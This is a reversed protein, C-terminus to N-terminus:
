DNTIKSVLDRIEKLSLWSQNLDSRYHFDDNLLEGEPPSYGWSSYVPGVIYRDIQSITRTGEGVAILEEHIKEGPRVGVVEVKSRPAVAEVLDTVKLSPLKPVFLEGGQMLDLSDSVFKVAQDITIIFRTMRRDTLPIASGTKALKLFYPVVSGRSGFVNGYRVVSFRTDTNSSLSNASTFLRDSTLKTAGYLNIPSSAKDTSLAIVRKVGVAIAAEIINNSGLVNTKVFEMPNYEGADVQKLAAAHIVYDVGRMAIKLRELDRIDGLFFRLRKDSFEIKMQSQKLEDRSYVVIRDSVNHELLQKIMARGFSGTGGSVFYSSNPLQSM